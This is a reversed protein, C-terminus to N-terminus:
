SLVVVCGSDGCFLSHCHRRVHHINEPGWVIGIKEVLVAVVKFVFSMDFNMNELVHLLLTYILMQKNDSDEETRLSELLSRGFHEAIQDPSHTTSSDHM